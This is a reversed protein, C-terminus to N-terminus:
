DVQIETGYYIHYRLIVQLSRGQSRHETVPAFTSHRTGAPISYVAKHLLPVGFSRIFRCVSRFLDSKWKKIRSIIGENAFVFLFLNWCTHISWM